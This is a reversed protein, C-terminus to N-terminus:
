TKLCRAVVAILEDPDFPKSLVETAGLRQAMRLYDAPGTRGGGSIALIPLKPAQSRVQRIMEIGEVEPMVIDTIIMAPPSQRFADLGAQGDTAITVEYGATELVARLTGRVLPDDDIVLIRTAM